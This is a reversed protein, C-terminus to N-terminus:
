SNPEDKAFKRDVKKAHEVFFDENAFKSLSNDLTLKFDETVSITGSVVPSSLNKKKNLTNKSKTAIRNREM